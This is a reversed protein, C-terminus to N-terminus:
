KGPPERKVGESEQQAQRAAEAVERVRALLVESEVRALESASSARRLVLTASENPTV